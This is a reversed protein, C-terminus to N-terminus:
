RAERVPFLDAPLDIVPVPTRVDATSTTSVQWRDITGGSRCIYVVRDGEVEPRIALDAPSIM